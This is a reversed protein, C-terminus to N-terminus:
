EATGEHNRAATRRRAHEADLERLEELTAASERETVPGHEKELWDVLERLRDGDQRLPALDGLPKVAQCLSDVQEPTMDYEYGVDGVSERAKWRDEERVM